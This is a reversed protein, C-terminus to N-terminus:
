RTGPMMRGAPNTAETGGTATSGTEGHPTTTGNTAGHPETVTPRTPSTTVRTTNETTDWVEENTPLVTPPMTTEMNRNTCGCGTAFATCLLLALALTIFRKM